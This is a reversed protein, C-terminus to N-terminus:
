VEIVAFANGITNVWVSDLQNLVISIAPLSACMIRISPLDLCPQLAIYCM